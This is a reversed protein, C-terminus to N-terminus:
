CELELTYAIAKGLLKLYLESLEGLKRGVREQNLVVMQYCLAVSNQTLGGEGAPIELTGPVQARRCNSTLPVVIAMRTFRELSNRQVLIVPRIGAQESGRSPNLNALYIEGRKM